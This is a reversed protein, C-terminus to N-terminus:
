EGDDPEWDEEYDEYRNGYGGQGGGPRAPGGYGRSAGSPAGYGFGYQGAPPAGNYGYYDRYADM